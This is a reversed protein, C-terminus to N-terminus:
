HEASALAPAPETAHDGHGHEEEDHEALASLGFFTLFAPLDETISLYAHITTLIIFLWNIIYHATRSIWGALDVSGVAPILALNWGLLAERITITTFPINYTLLALGTFAQIILLPLFMTYTAKQMVNYKGLHPKSPKVFIYYLIVKPMTTIDRKNIAFEKYDRRPSWFLYWVRAVMNVIVIIMAIYHVWRMGWRAFEGGFFPFRIYMGSIGLAFMAAVHQFHMVKPAAPIPPGEHHPWEWGKFRRKARGSLVNGLFHLSLASVLFVYIVTFAVDLWVQLQVM